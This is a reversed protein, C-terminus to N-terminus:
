TDLLKNERMKSIMRTLSRETRPCEDGKEDAWRKRINRALDLDSLPQLHERARRKVILKALREAEQRWEDDATARKTLSGREGGKGSSARSAATGSAAEVAHRATKTNKITFGRDELAQTLKRQTGVFEGATTAWRSWSAFLDASAEWVNPDRECEDAIWAAVADEAELYAATAEVVAKPPKLGDTKWKLCGEIMMILIKVDIASANASAEECASAAFQLPDIAVPPVATAAM